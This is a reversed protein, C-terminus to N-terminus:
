ERPKRFVLVCPVDFGKSLNNVLNYGKDEKEDIITNISDQLQSTVVAHKWLYHQEIDDCHNLIVPKKLKEQEKKKLLAKELYESGGLPFGFKVIEENVDSLDLIVRFWENLNDADVNYEKLDVIFLGSLITPKPKEFDPHGHVLHKLIETREFIKNMREKSLTLAVNNACIFRYGIFTDM